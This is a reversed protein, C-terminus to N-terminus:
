TSTGLNADFVYYHYVNSPGSGCQITYETLKLMNPKDQLQLKSATTVETSDAENAIGNVTRQLRLMAADNDKTNEIHIDTGVTFVVKGDDAFARFILSSSGAILMVALMVSLIKKLMTNKM